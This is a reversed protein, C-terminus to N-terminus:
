QAASSFGLPDIGPILGALVWIAIALVIGAILVLTATFSAFKPHLGAGADLFLHRVGNLAHYCVSLTFGFLVLQGPISAIIAAFQDYREPGLTTVFLWGVILFLGIYNAVGTARHLISGLMTMHWRWIWIHPSMPRKDTWSSM